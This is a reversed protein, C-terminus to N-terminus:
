KLIIREDIHLQRLYDHKKFFINKDYINQFTIYRGVSWGDQWM